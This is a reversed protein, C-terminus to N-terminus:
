ITAAKHSNQDWSPDKLLCIERHGQNGKNRGDERHNATVLLRMVQGHPMTKVKLILLQFAACILHSAWPWPPFQHRLWSGWFSYKQTTVSMTTDAKTQNLNPGKLLLFSNFQPPLIQHEILFLVSESQSHNLHKKWGTVRQIEGATLSPSSGKETHKSQGMGWTCAKLNVFGKYKSHEPTIRDKAEKWLHKEKKHQGPAPTPLLPLLLWSPHSLCPTLYHEALMAERLQQRSQKALFLRSSPSDQSDCCGSSAM